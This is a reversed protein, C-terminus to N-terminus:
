SLASELTTTNYLPTLGLSLLLSTCAADCAPTTFIAELEPRFRYDPKRASAATM